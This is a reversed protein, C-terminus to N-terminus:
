ILERLATDPYLTSGPPDGKAAEGARPRGTLPDIRVLVTPDANKPAVAVLGGGVLVAVGIVTWEQASIAGDALATGAAALGSALAGAAAKVYEHARNM